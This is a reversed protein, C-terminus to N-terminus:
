VPETRHRKDRNEVAPQISYFFEPKRAKGRNRFKRERRRAFNTQPSRAPATPQQRCHYVDLPFARLDALQLVSTSSEPIGFSGNECNRLLREQNPGFAALSPTQTTGCSSCSGQRLIRPRVM